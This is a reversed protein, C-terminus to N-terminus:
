TRIRRRRSSSPIGMGERYKAVTRRAIDVGEEELIKRIKEDSYVTNGTESAILQRIREKVVATTPQDTRDGNGTTRLFFFRMEFNGRPCELYKGRTVRSVTAEHLGTEEAIDALTLPRLGAIGDDFFRFQHRVVAQAVQLVTRARRDLARVVFRARTRNEAIYDRSDPDDLAVAYTEDILVQPIAEPNLEVLWGRGGDRRVIIEPVVTHVPMIDFGAAPRPNTSHLIAIAAELEALTIGLRRALSPYNGQALLDLNDLLATVEPTMHGSEVLQLMLCERLDRAGIGTPECGQLVRVARELMPAGVKLRALLEPVPTALFGNENLEDVLACAVEALAADRESMQIQRRLRERLSPEDAIAEIGDPFGDPQQAPAHRRVPGAFALLPNKGVEEELLAGLEESTMGLMGIAQRLQPTMTLQQRQRLELKPSMAM